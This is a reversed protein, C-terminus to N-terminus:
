RYSPSNEVYLWFTGIKEVHYHSNLWNYLQQTHEKTMGSEPRQRQAEAFFAIADPDYAELRRIWGEFGGPTEAAIQRDIGETTFLYQDPNERELLALVQPANISVLRADEGFRKRIELASRQQAELSPGPVEQINAAPTNLLAMALLAVGFLAAVPRPAETQHLVSALLAGFGIAAYPLFVYFDEPTQFDLLSWATFAPLSLLLPVYRHRFPRSFYLSSIAALGLLIPVLMTGYWSVMERIPGAPALIPPLGGRHVYLVNFFVLGDLLDELAGHYWFYAGTAALPGAVGALARLAAGRREGRPQTLALALSVLPLIGMPQWVLFALSGCFGAGLWRKQSALLLSLTEFLVMPIKPDPGSAVPRAFGYFGLFTLAGFLGAARSRFVREGLLYVAAATLCGVDFFVLRVAYVDDLNFWGSLAVGAGALMAPLPGKHDFIGVYPPVGEAVRQGGYLYIGYDRYLPGEFGYLGYVFVALVLVILPLAAEGVWAHSTKKM